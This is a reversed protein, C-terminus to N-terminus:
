GAPAVEHSPDTVGSALPAVEAIREVALVVVDDRLHEDDHRRAPV